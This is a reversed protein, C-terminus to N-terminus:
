NQTRTAIIRATASQPFLSVFCLFYARLRHHTRKERGYSLVAIFSFLAMGYKSVLDCSFTTTGVLNDCGTLTCDIAHIENVSEQNYIALSGVGETKNMFVSVKGNTFFTELTSFLACKYSKYTDEESYLVGPRCVHDSNVAQCPADSECFGCNLDSMGDVCRCGDPAGFQFSTPNSGDFERYVPCQSGDQGHSYSLLFAACVAFIGLCRLFGCQRVQKGMSEPITYFPPWGRSFYIYYYEYDQITIFCHRAFPCVDFM